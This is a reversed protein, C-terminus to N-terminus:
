RLLLWVQARHSTPSLTGLRHRQQGSIQTLQGLPHLNRWASDAKFCSITDTHPIHSLQSPKPGDPTTMRHQPTYQHPQDWAVSCIQEKM